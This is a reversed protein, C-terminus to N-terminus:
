LFSLNGQALSDVKQLGTGAEPAVLWSVQPCPAELLRCAVCGLNCCPTVLQLCNQSQHSCGSSHWPDWRRNTGKLFTFPFLLMDQEPQLSATMVLLTNLLWAIVALFLSSLFIIPFVGDRGDTGLCDYWGKKPVSGGPSIFNTIIHFLYSQQKLYM